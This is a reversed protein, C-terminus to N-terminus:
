LFGERKHLLYTRYLADSMKRVRENSDSDALKKVLRMGFGDNIRLLVSAALIKEDPDKSSKLIDRVVPASEKVLYKGALQIASNRLGYNESKLGAILNDIEKQGFSRIREQASMVSVFILIFSITLNICRHYKM